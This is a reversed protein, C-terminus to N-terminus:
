DDTLKLNSKLDHSDVDQPMRAEVEKEDAFKCDKMNKLLKKDWAIRKFHDGAILDKAYYSLMNGDGESPISQPDKPDNRM